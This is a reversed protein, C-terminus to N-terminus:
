IHRSLIKRAMGLTEESIHDILEVRKIQNFEEKLSAEVIDEVTYKASACCSCQGLLKIKVVGDELGLVEIDGNHSQLYPRIKTEIVKLLKEEM